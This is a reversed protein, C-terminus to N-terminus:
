DPVVVGVEVEDALSVHEDGFARTRARRVSPHFPPRSHGVRTAPTIDELDAVELDLPEEDVEVGVVSALVGLTVWPQLLPGGVCSRRPRDERALVRGPCGRGSWGALHRGARLWRPPSDILGPHAASLLLLSATPCSLGCAM